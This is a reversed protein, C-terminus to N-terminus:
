ILYGDQVNSGGDNDDFEVQYMHSISHRLKALYGKDIEEDTSLLIVQKGAYPFYREVLNSRHISDLRGLPTDIITPVPRGAATSLAWLISIAFLQREGASLTKPPLVKGDNGFLTLRYDQIDIKVQRVLKVKRTLRGFCEVIMRELRDINRGVVLRRYQMLTERAKNAHKISRAADESKLHESIDQELIKHLKNSFDNVLRKSVAVDEKTKLMREKLLNLEGSLQDVRELFPKIKDEDPIAEIKRELTDIEQEIKHNADLLRSCDSSADALHGEILRHMLHRSHESVNLYSPGKSNKEFERRDEKLYKEVRSVLAEGADSDKMLKIIKEDRLHLIELVDAANKSVTEIDVQRAVGMIQDRVLLLPAVDAAIEAMLKAHTEHAVKEKELNVEIEKRSSYSGGGENALLIRAQELEHEKRELATILHAEIELSKKCVDDASNFEAQAKEIQSRDSVNSILIKKKKEYVRLDTELQDVIDLGLLGNIATELLQNSLDFDALEEVREGDFFFLPMIRLPLIEEVHDLWHEAIVNDKKGDVFVEFKESVGGDVKTFWVRKINYSKKLGENIQTFTLEIAAGDKPDVYHNITSRLYDDYSGRGIRESVALKGYLALQIANLFTTKGSGNLAGIIVIPKKDSEPKLSFVQRGKYVGFNHIILQDIIM